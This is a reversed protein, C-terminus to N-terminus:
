LPDCDGDNVNSAPVAIICDQPQSSARTLKMTRLAGIMQRVSSHGLDAHLKAVTAEAIQREGEPLATWIEQEEQTLERQPDEAGRQLPGAAIELSEVLPIDPPGAPVSQQYPM